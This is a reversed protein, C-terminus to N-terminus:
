AAAGDASADATTYVPPPRGVRTRRVPEGTVLPPGVGDLTTPLPGAGFIMKINQEAPSKKKSLARNYRRELREREAKDNWPITKERDAGPEARTLTERDLREAADRAATIDVVADDGGHIIRLVVIEPITVGDRRMENYRSGGLMVKCNYLQM